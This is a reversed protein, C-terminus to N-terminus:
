SPATDAGPAAGPQNQPLPFGCNNLVEITCSVQPHNRFELMIKAVFFLPFGSFLPLWFFDRM